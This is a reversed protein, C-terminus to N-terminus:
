LLLALLVLGTITIFKSNCDIDIDVKDIKNEHEAEIRKEYEKTYGKINTFNSMQVCGRHTFNKDAEKNRFKVKMYCCISDEDSHLSVCSAAGHYAAKYDEFTDYLFNNGSLITKGDCHSGEELNASAILTLIVLLFLETKTQM